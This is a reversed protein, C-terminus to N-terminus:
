SMLIGYVRDALAIDKDISQVLSIHNGAHTRVVEEVHRQQEQTLASWGETCWFDGVRAKNLAGFVVPKIQSKLLITLFTPKAAAKVILYAAAPTGLAPAGVHRDGAYSLADVAYNCAHTDGQELCVLFVRLAWRVLETGEVLHIIPPCGSTARITAPLALHVLLADKFERVCQQRMSVYHVTALASPSRTCARIAAPLAIDTGFLSFIHLVAMYEDSWTHLARLMAEIMPVPDLDIVHHRYDPLQSALPRVFPWRHRHCLSKMYTPYGHTITDRLVDVITFPVAPALLEEFRKCVLRSSVTTAPGLRAGIERKWLDDPLATLLLCEQEIRARKVPPERTM